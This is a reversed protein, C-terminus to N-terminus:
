FKRNFDIRFRNGDEPNNNSEVSYLRALVKWKWPLVYALRSEHGHFDSARTQTASGWRMWDDQAYSSHVALTEIRAYSYGVLFDGQKKNKGLRIQFVYGETDNDTTGTPTGALDLASYDESNHMVDLGLNVPIGSVVTKAQLNGVWITYDRTGNGSLLHKAPTSEGDTVLVGGAVIWNITGTAASYVLQGFGMHGNNDVMGDPLLVYGGNFSAKGSSFPYNKLGGSAGIVTADDDWLLENQKWIPLSNRGGWAWFHNQKLKYYWKDFVLDKEGTPDSSFDAITIHPSQQSDVNGTRVRVGFESMENPTFKAGIRGRIRARARDARKSGSGTQSDWDQEFRFRFDAFFDVTTWDFDSAHCVTPVIFGILILFFTAIFQITKM